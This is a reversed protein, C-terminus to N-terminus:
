STSELEEATRKISKTILKSIEEKSICSDQLVYRLFNAFNKLVKQMSTLVVFYWDNMM